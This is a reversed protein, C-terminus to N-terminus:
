GGIGFLKEVTKSNQSWWQQFFYQQREEPTMDEVKKQQGKNEGETYVVPELLRPDVDVTDGTLDTFRLPNNLVYRYPTMSPYKDAFRDVTLFRGIQPDHFRAGFYHWNLDGEDDLEKGTFKYRADTSSVISRLELGFPYYDYIAKTNGSEDLVVRTNGLHDRVYYSWEGGVVVESSFIIFLVALLFLGKKSLM